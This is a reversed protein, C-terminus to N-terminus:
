KAGTERELVTENTWTAAAAAIVANTAALSDSSCKWEWLKYLCALPVLLKCALSGYTYARLIELNTNIWHLLKLIPQFETNVTYM